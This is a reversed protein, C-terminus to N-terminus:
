RKDEEHNATLGAAEFAPERETFLEIRIVKGDRFTYVNFSRIEVEIASSKGVARQHATVLVRDDTELVELIEVRMWEWSEFWSDLAQQVGDHGHYIQAGPGTPWEALEVDSDLWALVYGMDLRNFAEAFRRVIAVKESDAVLLV